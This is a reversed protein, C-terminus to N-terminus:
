LQKLPSVTCSQRQADVAEVLLVDGTRVRVGDSMARASLRGLLQITQGDLNLSILGCGSVDFNTVARAEEAVASELTHGEGAFRFWFNWLPAFLFTEFCIGGVAALLGRWPEDHMVGKILIGTAGFGLLLSFWFRPSLLMM